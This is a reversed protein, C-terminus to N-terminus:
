IDSPLCIFSILTLTSHSLVVYNHLFVILLLILPSNILNPAKPPHERILTGYVLKFDETICMHLCTIVNLRMCSSYFVSLPLPLLILSDLLNYILVCLACFVACHFVSIWIFHSKSFVVSFLFHYIINSRLM